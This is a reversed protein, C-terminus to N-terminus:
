PQFQPTNSFTNVLWFVASSCWDTGNEPQGDQSFCLEPMKSLTPWTEWHRINHLSRISVCCHDHMKLCFSCTQICGINAEEKRHGRGRGERRRERAKEREERSCVCVCGCVSWGRDTEPEQLENGAQHCHQCSARHGWCVGGNAKVPTHSHTHCLSLAPRIFPWVVVPITHEPPRVRERWVYVCVRM